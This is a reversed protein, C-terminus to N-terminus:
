NMDIQTEYLPLGEEEQGKEIHNTNRIEQNIMEDLLHKVNRRNLNGIVRKLLFADWQTQDQFFSTSDKDLKFGQHSLSNKLKVVPFSPVMLYILRYVLFALSVTLLIVWWFWLVFFYYQNFINNSLMCLINDVNTEGPTIAGTNVNCSVETPFVNCMPNVMLEGELSKQDLRDKETASYFKLVETGYNLFNGGLLANLTVMCIVISIINLIECFIFSLFYKRSTGDHKLEKFRAAMEKPTENDVISSMIGGECKHKWIFRPTKIIALCLGLTFPLWLYYRTHREDGEGVGKAVCGSVKKSLGTPLHGSGHFWCYQEVYNVNKDNYCNIPSGFHNTGFIFLVGVLVVFYNVQHHLRFLGNDHKVSDSKFLNTARSFFLDMTTLRNSGM